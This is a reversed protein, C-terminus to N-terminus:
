PTLNKSNQLVLDEPPFGKFACSFVNIFIVRHINRPPKQLQKLTQSLFVDNSKLIKRPSPDLAKSLSPAGHVPEGVLYRRTKGTAGLIAFM